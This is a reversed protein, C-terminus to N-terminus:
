PTSDQTQGASVLLEPIEREYAHSFSYDPFAYHEILPRTVERHRQMFLTRHRDRVSLNAKLAGDERSYIDATLNNGDFTQFLLPYRFWHVASRGGFKKVREIFETDANKRLNEYYGFELHTRPSACLAATGYREAKGDVPMPRFDKDVRVIDGFNLVAPSDPQALLTTQIAARQASSFDDSDNILYSAGDTLHDHIISNRIWYTGRGTANAALRVRFATRDVLALFQNAISMSNDTSVDDIVELECDPHTQMAVGYMSALIYDQKNFNSMAFVATGRESLPVGNMDFRVISLLQRPVGGTSASSTIPNIDVVMRAGKGDDLVGPVEVSAAAALSRKDVAAFAQSTYQNNILWYRKFSALPQGGVQLPLNSFREIGGFRRVGAATAYLSRGAPLAALKAASSQGGGQRQAAVVEVLDAYLRYPVQGLMSQSLAAVTEDRSLRPKAEFQTEVLFRVVELFSGVLADAKCLYTRDAELRQAYELADGLLREPSDTAIVREVESGPLHKILVTNFFLFEPEKFALVVRLEFRRRLLRLKELLVAPDRLTKDVCVLLALRPRKVVSETM